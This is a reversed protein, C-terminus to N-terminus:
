HIGAALQCKATAVEMPLIRGIKNCTSHSRVEPVVGRMRAVVRTWAAVRPSPTRSKRKSAKRRTARCSRGGRAVGSPSLGRGAPLRIRTGGM